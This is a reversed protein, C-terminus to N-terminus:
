IVDHSEEESNVLVEEVPMAKGKIEQMWSKSLHDKKDLIFMDGPRRRMHKYYGLKTAKVKM